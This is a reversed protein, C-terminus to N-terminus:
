SQIERWAQSPGPPSLEAAAAIRTELKRRWKSVDLSFERELEDLMPMYRYALQKDIMLDDPRVEVVASKSAPRTNISRYISRLTYYLRGQPILSRLRINLDQVMGSRVSYSENEVPFSYTEYFAKDIGLTGALRLMFSKQDELLDEFLLVHMREPGCAERWRRLHEIYYANSLAKSALENGRFSSTGQEAAQVFESFSMSRPIWHWNQQFYRHLSRLQAVPERLIFIFSPRTPLQHLERLATEYYMYSPTAELVVRAKPDCHAFLTQYGSLGHELFSQSSRYMHTDADVFYYTEKEEPGAVQPHDILWQFVSSTGAKPAGVIIWDPLM